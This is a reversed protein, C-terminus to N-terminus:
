SDYLEDFLEFAVLRATDFDEIKMGRYQWQQKRRFIVGWGSDYKSRMITIYEGKYRLTYNGTEPKYTWTKQVFNTRRIAKNRIRREQEEPNVYDATLSSACDCGVHLEGAYELHTLIHVYRIKEGCMDCYEYSIPEGPAVGEGLDVVEVHKWGKHPINPKNWRTM